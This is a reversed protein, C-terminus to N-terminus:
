EPAVLEHEKLTSKGSRIDAVRRELEATNARSYFPDASLEFPISNGGVLERLSKNVRKRTLEVIGLGTIDVFSCPLPDKKLEEKLFAILQQEEQPSKMNIFDVLIMGSISRLRLQRAIEAAAELNVYLLTEEKKSQNKGTNVDIVTLTELQEIIINAGSKLWVRSSLLKEINGRIHYLTSLSVAEDSYFSLLPKAVPCFSAIGEYIDTQDTLIADLQSFDASKLREAYFPPNRYLEQFAELHPATRIMTFFREMLSRIDDAVAEMPYEAAATRIVIGFPVDPAKGGESLVLEELLARYTGRQEESLKRSVSLANNQTTLVACNGQLSLNCTVVPDKTKVADRVVQVLIEDGMCLAKKKSQKRTFVANKADELPLFCKQTRSIRVFAAQIGPIVDEVRGIFISGLLTNGEPESMQFDVFNRNEDLIIYAIHSNEGLRIRTIALRNM